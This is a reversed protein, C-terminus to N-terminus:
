CCMPEAEPCVYVSQIWRSLVAQTVPPLATSRSKPGTPEKGTRLAAIVDRGRQDFYKTSIM